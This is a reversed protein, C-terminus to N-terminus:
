PGGAGRVNAHTGAAMNTSRPYRISFRYAMAKAVAGAGHTLGERAPAGGSGALQTRNRHVLNEDGPAARMAGAAAVLRIRLPTSIEPRCLGSLDHLDNGPAGSRCCTQGMSPT